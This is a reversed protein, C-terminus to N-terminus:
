FHFGVGVHGMVFFQTQDLDAYHASLDLLLSFRETLTVNGSLGVALGFATDDDSSSAGGLHYLGLGLYLGSELFDDAFLYEGSVTVYDLDSTVLDTDLALQGARVGWQTSSDTKMTFLAQWGFNDIGTDPDDELSGGLGALLGVTFSDSSQALGAAPALALAILCSLTV